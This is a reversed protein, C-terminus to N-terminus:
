DSPAITDGQPRGAALPHDPLSGRGLEAFANIGGGVNEVAFITGKYAFYGTLLANGWLMLVAQEGTEEVEGQWTISGDDRHTSDKRKLSIFGDRFPLRVEAGIPDTPSASYQDNAVGAPKAIADIVAQQNATVDKPRAEAQVPEPLSAAVVLLTAVCAVGPLNPWFLITRGRQAAGGPLAGVLEFASAGIDTSTQSPYRRMMTLENLLTGHCVAQSVGGRGPSTIVEATAIPTPGSERFPRTCIKPHGWLQQFGRFLGS